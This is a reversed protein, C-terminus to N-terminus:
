GSGPAVRLSCLRQGPVSNPHVEIVIPFRTQAGDAAVIPIQVRSGYQDTDTGVADSFFVVVLAVFGVHTPVVRWAGLVTTGTVPQGCTDLAWQESGRPHYDAIVAVQIPPPDSGDRATLDLFHKSTNLIIQLCQPGVIEVHLVPEASRTSTGSGATCGSPKSLLYRCRQATM